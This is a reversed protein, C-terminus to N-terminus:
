HEVRSGQKSSGRAGRTSEPGAGKGSCFRYDRIRPEPTYLEIYICTWRRGSRFMLGVWDVVTAEHGSHIDDDSSSLGCRCAMGRMSEIPSQTRFLICYNDVFGSKQNM